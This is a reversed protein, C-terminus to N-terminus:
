RVQGGRDKGIIVDWVPPSGHSSHQNIKRTSNLAVVEQHITDSVTLGADQTIQTADCLDVVEGEEM